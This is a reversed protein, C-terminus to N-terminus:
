LKNKRLARRAAETGRDLLATATDRHPVRFTTRPTRRPGLDVPSVVRLSGWPMDFNRQEGGRLRDLVNDVEAANAGAPVLLTKVLQRLDRQLNLWVLSTCVDLMSQTVNPQARPHPAARLGDSVLLDVHM